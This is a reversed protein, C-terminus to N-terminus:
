PRIVYKIGEGRELRDLAEVLGELPFSGSILSSADIKKEALIQRALRVDSPTYHFSGSVTIEDYHLRHTDYTVSTGAPCGGFLVVSGGRRVYRVAKEWVEARGTCEVVLDVGLSDTNKEIVQELANSGAATAGMREAASLRSESIDSAITRIGHMKLCALHLLGVPGAGVVLATEIEDYRLKNYPHVVCSLPELLAAEEFALDEPKHFFNQKVVHAPILLYDAFAGLAKKGMIMQCLNFLKRKCYLCEHCPASHVGMVADGEKFDPVGRGVAAVTGAYEHGFPGPMPILSHGRKYAKLDTGCTLSTEIKVVLEGEAPGPVPVDRIEIIGPQILIAQKM